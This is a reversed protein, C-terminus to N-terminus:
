KVGKTPGSAGSENMNEVDVETHRVKDRVTETRQTKDKSVRVDEVVRAEKSVVPEEAYEAVEITQEDGARFDSETAPRDAPTREVRVHEEQLNVAEEVPQEVTRSYVRVGGRLVARKGVKLEEETVPISRTGAGAPINETGLREAAIEDAAPEAGTPGHVEVPNHSNLIDVAKDVDDGRADVGVLVSGSRILDEYRIEEEHGGKGFISKIWGIFGGARHHEVETETVKGGPEGSSVYIDSSSFGSAKLDDVANTAALRNRFVAILTAQTKVAM